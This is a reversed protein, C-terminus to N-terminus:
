RTNSASAEGALETGPETAGRSPDANADIVVGTASVHM